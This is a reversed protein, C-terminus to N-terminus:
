VPSPPTLRLCHIAIRISGGIFDGGEPTILLPTDGYYAVPTGSVGVLSAGISVGIGSGYRNDSGAVGLRWSTLSAGTIDSLVRATVGTVIARDPVTFLTEFAGGAPVSVDEIILDAATFAGYACPGIMNSVWESGTWVLACNRRQVWARWGPKPSVFDWGGNVRFAIENDHGLWDGNAPPAIVFGDGDQASEPPELQDDDVVSLATLADLRLLAENMTVHKQAQAAAILPLKLNATDSM